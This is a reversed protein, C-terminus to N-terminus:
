YSRGGAWVLQASSVSFDLSPSIPMYHFYKKYCSVEGDVLLGFKKYYADFGIRMITALSRLNANPPGVSGRTLLHCLIALECWTSTNTRLQVLTAGRARYSWRLQTLFWSLPEWWAHMFVIRTKTTGDNVTARPLPLFMLDAELSTSIDNEVM